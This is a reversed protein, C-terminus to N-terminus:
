GAVVSAGGVTLLLDESEISDKVVRGIVESLDKESGITAGNFNIIVDGRGGGVRSDIGPTAPANLGGNNAAVNPVGISGGGGGAGVQSLAKAGEAAALAAMVLGLPFPSVALGNMVATATSAIISAKAFLKQQASQKGNASRTLSALRSFVNATVGLGSILAAAKAAATDKALQISRAAAERELGEEAALRDAEAAAGVLGAEFRAQNIASMEERTAALKDEAAKKALLSEGQTPDAAQEVRATAGSTAEKVETLKALMAELGSIMTGSNVAVDRASKARARKLDLEAAAIKGTMRLVSDDNGFQRTTVMMKKLNEIRNQIQAESEIAASKELIGWDEFTGMVSKVAEIISDLGRITTIAGEVIAIAMGKALAEMGGSSEAVELLWVKLSTAAEDMAPALAAVVQNTFGGFMASLRTMSDNASEVGQVLETSMSIGLLEAERRYAELQAQGGGLVALVEAARGGFLDQAISMRETANTVDNVKGVMFALLDSSSSFKGNIDEATIGLLAMADKAEGTGASFDVMQRSLNRSAKLVTGLSSGGIKAALSLAGLEKTSIGFITSLKGIKDIAQLSKTVLLGIGAVGATAAFATKLNLLAGAASKMAKKTKRGFRVVISDAKKFDKKMTTTNASIGIVLSGIKLKAM